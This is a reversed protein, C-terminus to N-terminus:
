ISITYQLYMETQQTTIVSYVSSSIIHYSVLYQRLNQINYYQSIFHHWKRFKVSQLAPYRKFIYSVLIFEFVRLTIGISLSYPVENSVCWANCFIVGSRRFTRLNYTNIFNFFVQTSQSHALGILSNLSNEKGKGM